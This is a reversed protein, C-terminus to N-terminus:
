RRVWVRLGPSGAVASWGPDSDLARALGTTPLDPSDALLVCDAGTVAPVATSRGSLVELAERNRAAGWYDARTDVWVRVDPRLLLVPGASAPDSLLRCRDPLADLVAAEPPRGLRAGALVVLPSLLVLTLWGVVRWPGGVSWRRVVPSRFVGAPEAATGRLRVRRAVRTAGVGALPALALLALGVFRVGFLGGAAAPAALVLLAAALGVRDDEGRRSWRRATAVVGAVALVLALLATPVWRAALGSATPAMWELVVGSAADQVTRTVTWADLGYPGAALGAVLGLGTGGLVAARRAAGLAPTALGLVAVSLWLAPALLLWSLHLWSGAAAVLLGGVLSGAALLGVPARVAPVRLRDAGLVAALFLSQAALTARPSVMPLALLLVALVGGLAPLPHAGLRRALVLVLSTYVLMSVLGLVFFGGFGAARWAAGLADNWAPSTQTFLRDVPAWSWSDPRSLPAGSLNEVGARVQWYPDREDVVGARVVALAALALWPLLWGRRSPAGTM